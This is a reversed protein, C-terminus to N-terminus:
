PRAPKQKWRGEPAEDAHLLTQFTRSGQPGQLKLDLIGQGDTFWLSGESTRYDFNRLSELAIRLSDRKLATWRQPIKALLDDLKGIEMTGPQTTRFSGQVRQISKAEANTQCSFELPGTM